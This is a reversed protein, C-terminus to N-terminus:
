EGRIKKKAEDLLRRREVMQEDSYIQKLGTGTVVPAPKPTSPEATPIPEPTPEPEHSTSEKLEIKNATKKAQREAKKTAEQKTPPSSTDEIKILSTPDLSEPCMEAFMEARPHQRAAASLQEPTVVIKGLKVKKLIDDIPRRSFKRKFKASLFAATVRTSRSMQTIYVVQAAYQILFGRSLAAFESECFEAVLNEQKDNFPEMIIWKNSKRIKIL